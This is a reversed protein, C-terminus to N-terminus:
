RWKSSGIARGITMLIKRREQEAEDKAQRLQDVVLQRAAAYEAQLESLSKNTTSYGARLAQVHAPVFSNQHFCHEPIASNGSFFLL